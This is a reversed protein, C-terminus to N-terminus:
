YWFHGRLRRRERGQAPGSLPQVELGERRQPQLGLLFYCHQLTWLGVIMSRRPARKPAVARLNIQTQFALAEFSEHPPLFLLYANDVEGNGKDRTGLELLNLKVAFRSEDYM